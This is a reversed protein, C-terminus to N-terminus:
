LTLSFYFLFVFRILVKHLAKAKIALLKNRYFDWNSDYALCFEVDALALKGLNNEVRKEASAYTTRWRRLGQGDSRFGSYYYYYYFSRVLLCFPLNFHCVALAESCVSNSSDWSLCSEFLRHCSYNSSADICLISKLM